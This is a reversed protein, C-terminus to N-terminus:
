KYKNVYVPGAHNGYWIINMDNLLILVPTVPPASAAIGEQTGETKLPTWTVWNRTKHTTNHLDNNTGTRKSMSNNAGKMLPKQNGVGKTDEFKEQHISKM